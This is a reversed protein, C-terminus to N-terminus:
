EDSFGAQEVSNPKATGMRVPEPIVGEGLLETLYSIAPLDQYPPYTRALNRLDEEPLIHKWMSSTPAGTNLQLAFSALVPLPSDGASTRSSAM